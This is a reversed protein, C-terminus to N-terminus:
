SRVVLVVYRASNAAVRKIRERTAHPVDDGAAVGLM